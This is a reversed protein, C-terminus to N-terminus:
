EAQQVFDKTRPDAPSSLIRDTEGCEIAEGNEMYLLNDSLGSWFVPRTLCSSWRTAARSSAACSRVCGRAASQISRTTPEDFMLLAPHMALARAIAVRQQEGGSLSEPYRRAKDKLGLIGAFEYAESEAQRRPTRLV